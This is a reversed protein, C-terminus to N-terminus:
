VPVSVLNDSTIETETKKPCTLHRLPYFMIPPHNGRAYSVGNPAVQPVWWDVHSAKSLSGLWTLLGPM